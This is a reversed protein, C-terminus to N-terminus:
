PEVKCAGTDRGLHVPVANSSTISPVDRGRRDIACWREGRRAWAIGRESGDIEDFQPEVM